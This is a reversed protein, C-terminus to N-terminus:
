DKDLANNVAAIIEKEDFPKQIYYDVLSKVTQMLQKNENTSTTVIIKADPDQAYISQIGELGDNEPMYLDMTVLDPKYQLFYTLAEKGNQAEACIEHGEKKLIEALLLRHSQEDDVILIRAM